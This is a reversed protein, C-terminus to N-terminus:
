ANYDSVMGEANEARVIKYWSHTYKRMELYPRLMYQVEVVLVAQQDRMEKSALFERSADLDRLINRHDPDLQEEKGVMNTRLFSDLMLQRLNNWAEKAEPRAALKGWTIGEPAYRHNSLINRYGKSIELANFKKSYGNKVRVPKGFAKEALKFAKALHEPEEFTMAVRNTDINEAPRPHAADKHDTIMKAMMRMFGKPAPAKCTGGADECVKKAQAQYHHDM